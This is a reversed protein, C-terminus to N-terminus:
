NNNNKTSKKKYNYKTGNLIYKVKMYKFFVEILAKNNM